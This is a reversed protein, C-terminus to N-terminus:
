EREQLGFSCEVNCELLEVRTEIGGIMVTENLVTMNIFKQKDESQLCLRFGVQLIFYTSNGTTSFDLEEINFNETWDPSSETDTESFIFYSITVSVAVSAVIAILFYALLKTNEKM